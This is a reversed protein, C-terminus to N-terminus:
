VAVKEKEAPVEPEPEPIIETEVTITVEDPIEENEEDLNFPKYRSNAIVIASKFEEFHVDTEKEDYVEVDYGCVHKTGLHDIATYEIKKDKIFKSLDCHVYAALQPGYNEYIGSGSKHDLLGLKGIVDKFKCGRTGCVKDCEKTARAIWDLTGAYGLELNCVTEEKAVIKFAHAEWMRVFSLVVNWEEDTLERLNLNDDALVKMDRGFKKTGDGSLFQNIAQHVADGKDCAKELKKEWEEATSNKLAIYFGEGKEFGKSLIFNVARLVTKTPEHWYHTWDGKRDVIRFLDPNSTPSLEFKKM